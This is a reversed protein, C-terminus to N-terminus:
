ADAVYLGSGLTINLGVVQHTLLNICASLTQDDAIALLQDVLLECIVYLVSIPLAM